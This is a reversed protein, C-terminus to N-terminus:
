ITYKNTLQVSKNPLLDLLFYFNNILVVFLCKQLLLLRIISFSFFFLCQHIYNLRMLGWGFFILIDLVCSDIAIHLMWYLWQKQTQLLFYFYIRSFFPFRNNIEMQLKRINDINQQTENEDIARANQILLILLNWSLDM